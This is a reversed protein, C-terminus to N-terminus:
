HSEECLLETEQLRSKRKHETGNGKNVEKAREAPKRGLLAMEDIDTIQPEAMGVTQNMRGATM